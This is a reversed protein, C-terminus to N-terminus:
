IARLGRRRFDRIQGLTPFTFYTAASQDPPRPSVAGTQLQELVHAICHAGRRKSRRILEDLSEGPVVAISEQLLVDGDDLKENMYHVTLGVTREGRYIQWFTPMMGKYRPLPAHHINICGLPPVSLLRRKLIFPCAVSVIVDPRRDELGRIFEADNPNGIARYPVGYARCLQRISFYRGAGQPLPLRGLTRSGLIRWALKLSGLPGYLAALERALQLRPRNGMARCCSVQSIEFKGLHARFFEEFFPLIYNSDNQTLFEIRM